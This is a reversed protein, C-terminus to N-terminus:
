TSRAARSWRSCTPRRTQSCNPRSSRTTTARTWRVSVDCGPYTAAYREVAARVGVEGYEHYWSQLPASAALKGVAAQGAAVEVGPSPTM